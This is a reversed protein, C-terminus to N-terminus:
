NEKFISYNEPYKINYIYEIDGENKIVTHAMISYWYSKSEKIFLNYNDDSDNLQCYELWEDYDSLDNVSPKEDDFFYDMCWINKVYQWSQPSIYASSLRFEVANLIDTVDEESLEIDKIVEKVM